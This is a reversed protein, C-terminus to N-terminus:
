LPKVGEPLDDPHVPEYVILTTDPEKDYYARVPRWFVGHFDPGLLQAYDLIDRRDGAYTKRRNDPRGLKLAATM